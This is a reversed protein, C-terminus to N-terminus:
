RRKKLLLQIRGSGNTTVFVSESTVEVCRVSIRGAGIPVTKEEGVGLVVGNIVASGANTPRIIGQLELTAPVPPAAVWLPTPVPPTLVPLVAPNTGTLLQPPLTEKSVRVWKLIELFGIEKELRLLDEIRGRTYPNVRIAEMEERANRFEMLKWAGLECVAELVDPDIANTWARNENIWLHAYEHACVAALAQRRQGSLLVIGHTLRDGLSRSHSFGIKHLSNTEKKKADDNWYDSDFLRVPTEPYKLEMEGRAVRRLEDTADLYLRGAEYEDFVRGVKDSHCYIRGDPTKFFDDKVPVGCVLCREKILHCPNCVLNTEQFLWVPDAITQSKSCVICRDHPHSRRAQAHLWGTAAILLVAALLGFRISRRPFGRM